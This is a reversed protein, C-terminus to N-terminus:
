IEDPNYGSTARASLLELDPLNEFLSDWRKFSRLAEVVIALPDPWIVPLDSEGPLRPCYAFREVPPTFQVDIGSRNGRPDIRYWSITM